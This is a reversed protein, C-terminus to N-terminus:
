GRKLGAYLAAPFLASRLLRGPRRSRVSWLAAALYYPLLLLVPLRASGLDEDGAIREYAFAVGAVLALWGLYNVVPVGSRGNEGVVDAAYAGDADWEWLGEDLGFPDLVLDLSTAVLAAVPPLVKRRGAESLHLRALTRETAAHAGHIVAYWDLIVAVPVRGVRPRTRHRLLGLGRTILFEGVAPLGAGLAFFVVTRRAGRTRTSSALNLGASLM